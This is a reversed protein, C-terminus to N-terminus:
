GSLLKKRSFFLTKGKKYFPIEKNNVMRYVHSESYGLMIALDKLRLIQFSRTNM